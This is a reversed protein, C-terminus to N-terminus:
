CSRFTVLILHNYPTYLEMSQDKLITFSIYIESLKNVYIILEAPQTEVSGRDPNTIKCVYYGEDSSAQVNKFYCCTRAFSCVLVQSNSSRTIRNVNQQICVDSPFGFFLLGHVIRFM